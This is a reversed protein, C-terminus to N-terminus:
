EKVKITMTKLERLRNGKTNYNSNPSKIDKGHNNSVRARHITTGSYNKVPVEQQRVRNFIGLDCALDFFTLYKLSSTREEEELSSTMEEEKLSKAVSCVMSAKHFRVKIWLEVLWWRSLLSWLRWWHTDENEM